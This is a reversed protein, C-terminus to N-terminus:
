RPVFVIDVIWTVYSICLVSVKDRLLNKFADVADKKNTFIYEKKGQPPGSDSDSDSHSTGCCVVVSKCSGAVLLDDFEIVTAESTFCV